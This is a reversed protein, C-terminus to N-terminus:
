KKTKKKTKKVKEKKTEKKIKEKIEKQKEAIIAEKKQKPKTTRTTINLLKLEKTILEHSAKPKIEIRKDTAELHNINCRKRRTEGDILVFPYDLKEVIVCLKGADRGATKVCIQGLELPLYSTNFKEIVKERMQQSSLVGGYPRSPRKQSKSLKKFKKNVLHPVGFVFQAKGSVRPRSSKRRKYHITLRGGPLKTKIRRLSRTKQPQLM